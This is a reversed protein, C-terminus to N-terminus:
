RALWRVARRKLDDTWVMRGYTTSEGARLAAEKLRLYLDQCELRQKETM